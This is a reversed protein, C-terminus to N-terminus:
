QQLIPRFSLNVALTLSQYKASVLPPSKTSLFDPALFTAKRLHKSSRTRSYAVKKRGGSEILNIRWSKKKSDCTKSNHKM